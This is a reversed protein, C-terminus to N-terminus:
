QASIYKGINEWNIELGDLRALKLYGDIDAFRWYQDVSTGQKGRQFDIFNVTGDSVEWNFCHGGTGDKWSLTCIGSANNGFQKVIMEAADNRSKAFLASSGEIVRAGKFCNKIIESTDQMESGAVVDYGQRRMFGAVSCFTCNNKGTEFNSLPNTKKLSEELTEPKELRRIESSKHQTTAGLVSDVIQKGKAVIDKDTLITEKGKNYEGEGNKDLSKRWGAKKESASHESAGLPYPPGNKKGGM